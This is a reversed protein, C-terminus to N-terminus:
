LYSRIAEANEKAEEDGLEAAKDLWQLAMDIDQTVGYGYYYLLGIGNMAATYELDAAKKYWGMAQIYNQPVGLGYDYMLGLYFMSNPDGLEAAKYFWEKAMSYDQEVGLGEFYLYGVNAMGMKEGLESAKLYWEMAKANDQKVGLGRTYMFGLENAAFTTFVPETGEAARSFYDFATAYDEKKNAQDALGMYGDVCGQDVASQFLETAKAEDQEVGMGNLYLLGLAIGALPDDGCAEYYARADEYNLTPYEYFDCLLGMYFNAPTYGLELAQRFHDYATAYSIVTGELGYISKRGMEYHELAQAKRAKEKAAETEEEAQQTDERSRNVEEEVLATGPEASVEPAQEQSQEQSQVQTDETGNEEEACGTFLTATLMLGMMFGIMRKKM